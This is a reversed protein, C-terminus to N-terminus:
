TWITNNFLEVPDAHHYVLKYSANPREVALTMNRVTDDLLHFETADLIDVRADAYQSFTLEKCLITWLAPNDIRNKYPANQSFTRCMEDTTIVLTNVLKNGLEKRLRAYFPHALLHNLKELDSVAYSYIGVFDIGHEAIIKHMKQINYELPVFTQWEDIVTMELDLFLYKM